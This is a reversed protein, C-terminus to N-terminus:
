LAAVGLAAAVGVVIWDVPFAPVLVFGTVYTGALSGLTAAASLLGAARGSHRVDATALQVALPVVLNLLLGPMLGVLLTLGVLRVSWPVLRVGDGGALLVGLAVLAWGGAVALALRLRG